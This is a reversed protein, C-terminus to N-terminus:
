YEINKQVEASPYEVRLLEASLQTQFEEDFQVSSTKKYKYLRTETAFISGSIM